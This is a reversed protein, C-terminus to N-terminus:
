AGPRYDEECEIAIGNEDFVVFFLIEESTGLFNKQAGKITYGCRCNRYLGDSDAPMTTCDFSGFESIIEVSTKGVFDDINYKVSCGEILLMIFTCIWFLRIRKKM